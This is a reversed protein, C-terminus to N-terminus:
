LPAAELEAIPTATEVKTRATGASSKNKKGAIAKAKKAPAAKVSKVVKVKKTAALKVKKAPASKVVTEPALAAAKAGLQFTGRGVQNVAGTAILKRLSVGVSGLPLGSGSALAPGTIAKADGGKLAAQLHALLKNDNATLSVPKLGGKKAKKPLKAPKTPKAIVDVAASNTAAKRKSIAPLLIVDSAPNALDAAMAYLEQLQAEVAFLGQSLKALTKFRSILQESEESFPATAMSAVMSQAQISVAAAIAVSSDHVAQGAKQISSLNKPSLSM